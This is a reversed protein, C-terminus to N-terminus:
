AVSGRPKQQRGQTVYVGLQGRFADIAAVFAQLKIMNTTDTADAQLLAELGLKRQDDLASNLTDDTLLRQAELSLAIKEDETM